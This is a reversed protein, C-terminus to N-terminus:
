LFYNLYFVFKQKLPDSSIQNRDSLNMDLILGILSIFTILTMIFGVLGTWWSWGHYAYPDGSRGQKSMIGLSTAIFM